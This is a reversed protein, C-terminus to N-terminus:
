GRRADLFATRVSIDFAYVLYSVVLPSRGDTTAQWTTKDLQALPVPRGGQHAQLQSLHRGFERVLYSGPIWVPLALRQQSAPRPVTLTVRFQHAHADAIELRYAIM